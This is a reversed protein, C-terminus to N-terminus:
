QVEYSIFDVPSIIKIRDTAYKLMRDDTTILYDSKAMMACAIHCADKFKIGTEMIADANKEIIDKSAVSVFVSVNKEIFDWIQERRMNYPNQSNEFQLVYSSVLELEGTKILYQVRLKAQTEISIRLQSQDDYPRNFCCNDLYVKM